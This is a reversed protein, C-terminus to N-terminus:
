VVWPLVINGVVFGLLCRVVALAVVVVRHSFVLSFSYGCFVAIFVVIGCSFGFSIFM